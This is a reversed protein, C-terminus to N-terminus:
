KSGLSPGFELRAMYYRNEYDFFDINSNREEYGATVSLTLWNTLKCGITGSVNYDDDKRDVIAFVSPSEYDSNQYYGTIAVLLKELFLHGASLTIRHAKFYDESLGQDNFNLEDVLSFYSRPDREPAPPNQGLIAIRYTPIDIEELAPDSFERKHYGGGAEFSFYNFQQRFILSVQNSTYDSTTLDYNRKWCQYEFDLSTSRTFNYIFDFMGRNETSDELDERSYNTETNRYRLGVSFKHGLDYFIMPTVRNIFYKERIVANNFIDSQAPDRTKYFSNDLGLLVRSFPRYRAKLIGTHGGYDNEDTPEEGIPIPDKDDYYYADFTYDLLLETKATEIGLEIGPQVLYTFVEREFDEGARYYDSDVRWQAAVKPKINFLTGAFCVVSFTLLILIMVM